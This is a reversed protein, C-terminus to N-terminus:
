KPTGDGNECDECFALIITDIAMEYVSFFISAVVFGTFISIAVPLVPSCSVPPWPSPTQSPPHRTRPRCAAPDHRASM